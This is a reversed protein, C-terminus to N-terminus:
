PRAGALMAREHKASEIMSAMSMMMSLLTDAAHHSGTKRLYGAVEYIVACDAIDKSMATREVMQTIPKVRGQPLELGGSASKVLSEFILRMLKDRVPAV